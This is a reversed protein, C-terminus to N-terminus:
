RAPRDVYARWGGYDAPTGLDLERFGSGDTNVLAYRFGVPPGSESFNVLLQEGTPSWSYGNFDGALEALSERRHTEIRRPM